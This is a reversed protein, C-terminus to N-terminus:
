SGLCDQFERTNRLLDIAKWHISRLEINPYLRMVRQQEETVFGFCSGIVKQSSKDLGLLTMNESHFGCGTMFIHKAGELRKQVDVTATTDHEGIIKIRSGGTTYADTRGYAMYENANTLGGFSGYIHYINLTEAVLDHAAALTMGWLGACARAIRFEVTRDYNFTIFVFRDSLSHKKVILAPWIYALWDELPKEAAKNEYELLCKAILPRVEKAYTKNDTLFRDISMGCDLLAQRADLLHSRVKGDQEAQSDDKLIRAVETKLGDGLPFGFPFHAGAGLIFVIKDTM